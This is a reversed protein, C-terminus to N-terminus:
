GRLLSAASLRSASAPPRAARSCRRRRRRALPPPARAGPVAASSDRGLKEAGYVFVDRKHSHGHMDCFLSLERERAFAKLLEKTHWITPHLKRSPENWVRNLDIGALNCRYNGVVVGDPNLM